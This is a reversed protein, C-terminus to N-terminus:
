KGIEVWPDIELAELQEATVEYPSFQNTLILGARRYRPYGTKHRLNVTRKEADPLKKGDDTKQQAAKQPNWGAEKLQKVADAAPVGLAKALEDIIPQREKTAAADLRKIFDDLIEM